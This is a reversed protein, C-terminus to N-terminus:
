RQLQDIAKRINLTASAESRGKPVFRYATKLLWLTLKIRVKNM